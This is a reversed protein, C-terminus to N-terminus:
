ADIGLQEQVQNLDIHLIKSIGQEQMTVGYLVDSAEMTGRRHTIVIFQTKDSLNKLYGAFREVNRDDLAADIEDLLCFSAPRVKMIAFYLAIAVFAKEGGSLLTITKLQKGPPQVKIEIGTTLPEDPNELELSARGGGFMEVFTEGFYTNIRGFERVFIDKMERTITRVIEELEKKSHLVDDRQSTLYDYRESVRAFEDIAGLNPTGLGTIKRKLESIRRNASALSEVEVVANKAATRTLEYTDWLKDIIQKEELATTAKKQELRAAEREMLLIDKNKEQAEKEARTRQQELSSRQALFAQLEQRKDDIRASIDAQLKEEQAIRDQLASNEELYKKILQEKVAKDGQMELSLAELRTINQLISDNEATGAASKMKLETAAASLVRGTEELRAMQRDLEAASADLDRKQEELRRITEELSMTRAEDSDAREDAIRLEAEYDALNAEIAELLTRHQAAEGDLRLASDEAQRLQSQAASIQFEVEEAARAAEELEKKASALQHSIEDLENGLREVANARSLLGANKSASGGTMTGGVNMVQGDLTVIRFRSSFKKAMEMAADLTECVVTTGLLNSVVVSYKADCRVLESAIGVFGRCQAVGNEKFQRERVLNLPMCTVRGGNSHKLMRLCAAGDRESEVVINQLAAGLATEVAVTYDEDTKILGSVPGIVGALRGERAEQMVRKVPQSFGEFDREMERLMDLRSRVTKERILLDDVKRHAQERRELRSGRRLQYGAIANEAAVVEERAATQEQETKKLRQSIASSRERAAQMDTLLTERRIRAEESTASLGAIEAKRASIELLIQAAQSHKEATLDALNRTEEANRRSDADATALATEMRILEDRLDAIRQKQEQIQLAVGGTRRQQEDMEERIRRVNEENNQLNVRLVSIEAGHGQLEGELAYIADRKAEAQLDMQNLLLNHQEAAAYLANLDSHQQELIFAASNYDAEAKEAAASLRELTELWVTVELGRLEDRYVLYKKAKEAQERLPEVQLELETIKDGIRLLNEETNALRRETEEKRHRYKSIGAAEEFIERRDTSKLAVIEDIRGQGINSYGERGLGTDMFLEHIDRLRVSQRNIYYESEGSNFYRRTIAVEDADVAFVRDRNDLTLTAEAFGMAPRKQTGGFIVDEMKAGRLERTRMEGMVWRIADSINSKGSGNPGVISTINNDFHIVTRDAFSKFGQLELSRLYV